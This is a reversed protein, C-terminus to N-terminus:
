RTSDQPIWSSDKHLGDPTRLLGSFSCLPMFDIRVTIVSQLYEKLSQRCDAHLGQPTWSSDQPIQSSDQPTWSSDQPIWSSDKHLGVPTRHVGCPSWTSQLCLRLSYKCDTIVTLITKM